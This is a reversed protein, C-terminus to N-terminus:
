RVQGDFSMLPLGRRIRDMFMHIVRENLPQGDEYVPQGNSSSIRSLEIEFM